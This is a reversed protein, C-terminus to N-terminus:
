LDTTLLICALAIGYSSLRIRIVRERGCLDRMTLCMTGIYLFMSSAQQVDERADDDVSCLLSQPMDWCPKLCAM